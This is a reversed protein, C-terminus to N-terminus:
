LFNTTIPIGAEGIISKVRCYTSELRVIELNAHSSPKYRLNTTSFKISSYKRAYKRSPSERGNNNTVYYTENYM